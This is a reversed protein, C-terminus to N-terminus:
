RSNRVCDAPSAPLVGFDALQAAPQAVMETALQATQQAALQVAQGCCASARGEDSLGLDARIRPLVVQSLVRINRAISAKKLSIDEM